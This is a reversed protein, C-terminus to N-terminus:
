HGMNGPNESKEDQNRGRFSYSYLKGDETMEELQKQIDKVDYIKQSQLLKM